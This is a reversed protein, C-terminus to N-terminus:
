IRPKLLLFIRVDVIRYVGIWQLQRGFYWENGRTCIEHNRPESKVSLRVSQWLATAVCEVRDFSETHMKQTGGNASLFVSLVDNHKNLSEITACQIRRLRAWEFAYMVMHRQLYVVFNIILSVGPCFFFRVIGFLFWWSRFAIRKPQRHSPPAANSFSWNNRNPM